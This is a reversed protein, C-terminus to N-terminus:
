KSFNMTPATLPEEATANVVVEAVPGQGAYSASNAVPKAVKALAAIASLESMPKGLLQEKTFVNAKNAVIEGVLKAKQAQHAQLGSQLMDRIGEPAKAIYEEASVPAANQEPAEAEPEEEPEVKEPAVEEKEQSVEHLKEVAEDSKSMLFERDEEVFLGNAILADVMQKKDMTREKNSTPNGKSNGTPKEEAKFHEIEGLREAAEKKTDYGKSLKKSGDKSFVFFKGNEEKIMNTTPASNGLVKGDKARYETVQVVEEPKGEIKVDEGSKSWMQKYLKGKEQFIFFGDFVDRVWKDSPVSTGSTNGAQLASSIKNQIDNFSSQNRLLGAGDEISCAGKLDPLIALHDPRYNRAIGKYERGNFEGEAAENDTFLGTSIETMAGSEINTLVRDDVKQLRDKELWAEAKLKGEGFSTNMIVGVKRSSIVDPDCASVGVGNMTPHYVVIPKHNWVAPVKALEKAPYYLPGYSGNLVGEVMMVMPVVLYDRDEMKDHRVSGKLNTTITSFQNQTIQALAKPM